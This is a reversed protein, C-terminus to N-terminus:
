AVARVVALLDEPREIILAPACTRLHTPSLGWAVGCFQIGAARATEIDIASDGVLLMCSASTGTLTRLHELGSPDPKRKSLSDGGVVAIFYASLNLGDLIARSMALPKNTLVSLVAGMASLAALVEELHPYPRTRDLLHASYYSLFIPLAHELRDEHLPGLARRVLTCVGEGVYDCVTEFSLESLGLQHLTYNVAAALDLRSDILTGDLDFVIHEYRLPM